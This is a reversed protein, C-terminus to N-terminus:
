EMYSRAKKTTNTKKKNSRNEKSHHRQRRTKVDHQVRESPTVLELLRDFIDKPVPKRLDRESETDSDTSDTDSMDNTSDADAQAQAETPAKPEIEPVEFAYNRPRFLAPMMFLGAPVALDRFLDSFKEPIYHDDNGGGIGGSGGRQTEADDLSVFLPMKNQYLLNNVQYGGGIMNGDKDQHLTLHEDPNFYQKVETKMRAESTIYHYVRYLIM